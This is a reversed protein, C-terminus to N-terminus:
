LFRIKEAVYRYYHFSFANLEGTPIEEQSLVYSLTVILLIYYFLSKMTLKNSLSKAFSAEAVLLRRNHDSGLDEKPFCRSACLALSRSVIPDLSTAVRIVQILQDIFYELRNM